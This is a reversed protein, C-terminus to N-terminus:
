LNLIHYKTKFNNKLIERYGDYTAVAEYSPTVVFDMFAPHLTKKLRIGSGSPDGLLYIANKKSLEIDIFAGARPEKFLRPPYWNKYQANLTSVKKGMSTMHYFSSVQIGHTEPVVLVSEPTLGCHTFGCSEILATFELMRSLIWNVHEQPLRLCSLPISRHAFSVVLKTDEWGMGLPLYKKFHPSGTAHLLQYNQYSLQLLHLDGEFVARYGNSHFDGSEDSFREGKEFKNKLENLRAAAVSAGPLSCVDPHVLFMLQKFEERWNSTGVIDELKDAAQIKEILERVETM